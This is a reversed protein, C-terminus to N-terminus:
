EENVMGREEGKLPKDFWGEALDAFRAGAKDEFSDRKSCRVKLPVNLAQCWFSLFRRLGLLRRGRWSYDARARAASCLWFKCTLARLGCKNGTLNECPYPISCCQRDRRLCVGGFEHWGCVDIKSEAKDLSKYIRDYLWERVRRFWKYDKEFDRLVKSLTRQVKGGVAAAIPYLFAKRPKKKMDYLVGRLEWITLTNRSTYHRVLINFLRAWQPKDEKLLPWTEAEGELESNMEAIKENEANIISRAKKVAEEASLPKGYIGEIYENIRTLAGENAEDIRFISHIPEIYWLMIKAQLLSEATVTSLDFHRELMMAIDERNLKGGGESEFVENGQAYMELFDIFALVLDRAREVNRTRIFSSMIFPTRCRLRIEAENVINRSCLYERQIFPVALNKDRFLVAPIGRSNPISFDLIETVRRTELGDQKWYTKLRVTYWLHTLLEDGGANTIKLPFDHMFARSDPMTDFVESAIERITGYKFDVGLLNMARCISCAFEQVSTDRVVVACVGHANFFDGRMANFKEWLFSYPANFLACAAAQRVVPSFHGMEDLAIFYFLYCLPINLGTFIFQRMENETLLIEFLLASGRKSYEEGQEYVIRQYEIDKFLLSEKKDKLTDIKQMVEREILGFTENFEVESEPFQVYCSVAEIIASFVNEFSRDPPNLYLDNKNLQLLLERSLFDFDGLEPFLRVFALARVALSEGIQGISVSRFWDRFVSDARFSSFADAVVATDDPKEYVWSLLFKLVDNINKLCDGASLRSYEVRGSLVNLSYVLGLIIDNIIEGLSVEGVILSELVDPNKRIRKKLRSLSASLM